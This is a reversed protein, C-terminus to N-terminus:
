KKADDGEENLGFAVRWRRRPKADEGDASEPSQMSLESLRGKLLAQERALKARELSFELEAARHKAEWEAELQALRERQAVVLEDGDLLTELQRDHTRQDFSATDARQTAELEAIRREREAVIRDTIAITGEITAREQRRAPEAAAGDEQELLALLQAKQAAWNLPGTSPSAVVGSSSAAAALQERLQANEQKYQRVDDVAMEFRRRLDEAERQADLDPTAVPANELEELRAALADRESRIAILEPSELASAEPRHSLEERLGNSERKLKQVDALALDFKQQLSDFEARPITSGQLQALESQAAALDTKLRSVEVAHAESARQTEELQLELGGVAAGAAALDRLQAVEEEAVALATRLENQLALSEALATEAAQKAQETAAQLRQDNAAREDAAANRQAQERQEAAVAYKLSALEAGVSQRECDLETRLRVAEALQHELSEVRQQQVAHHQRQAAVEQELEAGRRTLAECENHLLELDRSVAELQQREVQRAELSAQLEAELEATQDSSQAHLDNLAQRAAAVQGAVEDHRLRDAQRQSEATEFESRLREVERQAEELQWVAEQCATCPESQIADLQRRAAALQETFQRHQERGEEVQRRLAALEAEADVEARRRTNGEVVEADDALQQIRLSLESEIQRLRQRHDDLAQNARERLARLKEAAVQSRDGPTGPRSKIEEM